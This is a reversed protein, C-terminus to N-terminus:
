PVLRLRVEKRSRLLGELERGLATIKLAGGEISVLGAHLLATAVRRVVALSLAPKGRESQSRNLVATLERQELSTEGDALTNLIRYSIGSREFHRLLCETIEPVQPDAPQQASAPETQEVPGALVDLLENIFADRRRPALVLRVVLDAGVVAVAVAVMIITAMLGPHVATTM